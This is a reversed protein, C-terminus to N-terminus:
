EVVINKITVTSPVVIATPVLAQLQKAFKQASKKDAFDGVNIKYNPARYDYYSRTNLYRRNFESKLKLALNKDTGNYIQVRFGDKKVISGTVTKNGAKVEREKEVNAIEAKLEKKIVKPAEESSIITQTPNKIEDLVNLIPNKYVITFLSDEFEQSKADLFTFLICILGLFKISLGKLSIKM